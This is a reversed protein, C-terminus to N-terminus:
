QGGIANIWRSAETSSNDFELARKLSRKANMPNGGRNYEYAGQAIFAGSYLRRIMDELRGARDFPRYGISPMNTPHFLTDPMLRLALGQPVRQLGRTFEPEIESTVYVPRSVLSKRIFSWIMEVFRAQILNPNYPLDHEFRYLERRFAAVETESERLLWPHRQDLEELYWSRRLLEKDVVVVDPRVGKVFQYYYSASVWYDWQFSFILANPELSAFINMTYDEVLYNESENTKGYHFSCPILSVGIVFTALIPIKLSTKAGIWSFM